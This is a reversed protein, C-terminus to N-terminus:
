KMMFGGSWVKRETILVREKHLPQNLFVLDETFILRGNFSYIKIKFKQLETFFM